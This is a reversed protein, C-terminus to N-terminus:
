VFIKRGRCNPIGMGERYKAVTRRSIVTEKEELIESIKQDSYPKSKDEGEIIQRIRQKIQSVAMGEADAQVSMGKQFFYSLPFVGWCCQLYKNRVARSVTSEHVGMIGAAEQLRFPKLTMEGRLFFAEQADIICKTLELLTANRRSICKQIGEARRVQRLLYDKVDAGCDSRMMNLYDQNIRLVPCSYNNLLIELQGQFKVVVIDPVVYRLMEGNDFGQAPKPNLERIRQVAETVEPLSVKLKRAIVHLQNKGLLDMYDTIIKEEIKYKGGLKKLQKLLCERLNAACVGAPELDRMISLYEGAEEVTIHLHEALEEESATYYGKSDLCGAIYDFIEMERDTYGKGILQLHLVDELREDERKALNNMGSNEEADEKDYRYFARNQEDLGALWELKKIREQDGNELVPYELDVVPNGLSEEKIYESLEQASMQLMTVSQIMKQSLVQKQSQEMSLAM